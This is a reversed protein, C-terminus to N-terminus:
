ARKTQNTISELTYQVHHKTCLEFLTFLTVQNLNTYKHTEYSTFHVQNYRLLEYKWKLSYLFVINLPCIMINLLVSEICHTKCALLTITRYNVLGKCWSNVLSKAIKIICYFYWFVCEFWITYEQKSIVHKLIGNKLM